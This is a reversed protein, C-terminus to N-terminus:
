RRARKIVFIVSPLALLAYGASFLPWNFWTPVYSTFDSFMEATLPKGSYLLYDWIFSLICIVAGTITCLWYVSPVILGPDREILTAIALGGLAMLLAILGATWVPGVWPCPILFLIDWTDLSPPWGLIAYLTVYYVIDWIGFAAVFFCFRQLANRGAMIGFGLLMLITAAERLVEVLGIREPLVKLPFGFGDPYYLERLYVVVAGEFYGMATAFILTWILKRKM